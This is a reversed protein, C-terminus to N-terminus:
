SSQIAVGLAANVPIYIYDVGNVSVSDGAAGIGGKCFYIPVVGSVYMTPYGYAFNQFMVPSVLQRTAGTSSITTAKNANPWLHPQAVGNSAFTAVSGGLNISGYNVGTGVHTINTLWAGNTGGTNSNVFGAGAAWDPESAIGAYKWMYMIQPVINYRTHLDTMSHEWVALIGENEKILTIHRANAILHYTGASNFGPNNLYITGGNAAYGFRRYAENTLVGGSTSSQAQGMTFWRTPATGYDNNTYMSYVVAFKEKSENPNACPAKVVWNYTGFYPASTAIDGGDTNVGSLTGDGFNSGVYTWGAPTSDVITSATVNWTNSSLLSKSPSNSTVLRVIDRCMDNFRTPTSAMVLKAYM